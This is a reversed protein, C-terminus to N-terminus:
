GSLSGRQAPSTRMLERIRSSLVEHLGPGDWQNAGVGEILPTSVYWRLVGDQDIIFIGPTHEYDDEDPQDIVEIKYAEWVQSLDEHAGTLFRWTPIEGLLYTATFAAVDKASNFDRNINVGLFVVPEKADSLDLSTLRLEFATLPCTEDCRSDLFALVVIQGYFESLRVRSGDQDTLEFDPAEWGLPTGRYSTASAPSTAAVPARSMLIAAVAVAVAAMALLGVLALAARRRQLPRMRELKGSASGM